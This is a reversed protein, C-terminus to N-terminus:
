HMDCGSSLSESTIAGSHASYLLVDRFITRRLFASFEPNLGIGVKTDFISFLRTKVKVSEADLNEPWSQSNYDVYLRLRASAKRAIISAACGATVHDIHDNVNLATDPDQANITLGTTDSGDMESGVISDLTSV